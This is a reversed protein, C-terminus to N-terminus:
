SLIHVFQLIEAFIISVHFLVVLTINAPLAAHRIDVMLLFSLTRCIPFAVPQILNCMDPSFHFVEHCRLYKLAILDEVLNLSLPRLFLMPMTIM